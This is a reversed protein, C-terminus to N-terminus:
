QILFETFLLDVVEQEPLLETLHRKLELRLAEKGEYSVLDEAQKSGLVSLVRDRLLAHEPGEETEAKTGKECALVLSLSLRLYRESERDALNLIFPALSVVTTAAKKPQATEVDATREGKSGLVVVAAGALLLVVGVGVLLPTKRRSKAPPAAPDQQPSSM